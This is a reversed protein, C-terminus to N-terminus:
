TKLSSLSIVEQWRDEPWGETYQRKELSNIFEDLERDLKAALELREADTMPKKVEEAMEHYVGKKLKALFKLRIQLCRAFPRKVVTPVM